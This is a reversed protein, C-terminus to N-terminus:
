VIGGSWAVRAIPCPFQVCPKTFKALEPHLADAWFMRMIAMPLYNTKNAASERGSAFLERWLLDLRKGDGSRVSQMFDLVMYVYDYFFQSLWALDVNSQFAAM